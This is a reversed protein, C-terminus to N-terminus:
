VSNNETLLLKNGMVKGKVNVFKEILWTSIRDQQLRALVAIAIQVYHQNDSLLTSCTRSLSNYGDFVCCQLELDYLFSFM